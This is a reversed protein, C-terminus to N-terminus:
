YLKCTPDAGRNILDMEEALTKIQLIERSSDITKNMLRLKSGINSVCNKREIVNIKTLYIKSLENFKNKLRKVNCEYIDPSSFIAAYLLDESYYVREGDKTLYNSGYAVKVDCDKQSGFCVKVCNSQEQTKNMFHIQEIYLDELDEQVEEPTDYFCYDDSFIMLTDAVKFGLEFPKSFIVLRKGQIINEVFIYKDKIDVNDSKEGFKKGFTQESFAITQRGFPQFSQESCAFYFKSEKKFNVVDSKGSALGTEFPDLLSIISTATETYLTTEGTKIFTGAAYIALFLIFGGVIIAFLWNFSMGFLAKRTTYFTSSKKVVRFSKKKSFKRTKM